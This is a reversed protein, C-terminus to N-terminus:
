WAHFFPNDRHGGFCKVQGLRDLRIMTWMAHGPDWASGEAHSGIVVVRFFRRHMADGHITEPDISRWNRVLLELLEYLCRGHSPRQLEAQDWPSGLRM